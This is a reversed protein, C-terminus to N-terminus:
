KILINSDIFINGPSSTTEWSIEEFNELFQLKPITFPIFQFTEEINKFSLFGFEYANQLNNTFKTKLNEGEWSLIKKLSELSTSLYVYNGKKSTFIGWPKDKVEYGTIRSVGVREEVKKIKNETSAVKELIIEDDIKLVKKEVTFVGRNEFFAELAKDITTKNNTKAIFNFNIRENQSVSFAYENKFIPLIDKYFNLKHGFYKNFEALLRGKLITAYEPTYKQYFAETKKWQEYFNQGSLFLLINDKPFKSSLKITNKKNIDSTFDRHTVAYIKSFIEPNETNFILSGYVRKIIKKHAQLFVNPLFNGKIFWSISSQPLNQLDNKFQKIQQQKEITNEKKYFIQSLDATKEVCYLTFKYHQCSLNLGSALNFTQVKKINKIKEKETNTVFNLLITNLKKFSLKELFFGKNNNNLEFLTLYPTKTKQIATIDNHKLPFNLANIAKQVKPSYDKLKFHVFKITNLPLKELYYSKNLFHWFITSSVLVAILLILFFSFFTNIKKLSHSLLEIKTHIAKKKNSDTSTSIKTKKSNKNSKVKKKTM